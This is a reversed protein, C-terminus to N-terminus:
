DVYRSTESTGIQHQLGPSGSLAAPRQDTNSEQLLLDEPWHPVAETDPHIFKSPLTLAPLHSALAEKTM